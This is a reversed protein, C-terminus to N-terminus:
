PGEKSPKNARELAKRIAEMINKLAAQVEPSVEDEGALTRLNQEVTKLKQLQLSVEKYSSAYSARAQAVADDITKIRARDGILAQAFLDRFERPTTTKAWDSALTEANREVDLTFWQEEDQRALRTLDDMLHGYTQRYQANLKDLNQQQQERYHKVTPELAAAREQMYSPTTCGALLLSFTSILLLHNCLSKM